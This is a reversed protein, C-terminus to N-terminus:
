LEGKRFTPSINTLLPPGVVTSASCTICRVKCAHSCPTKLSSSLQPTPAFRLQQWAGCPWEKSGSRFCKLFSADVCAWFSITAFFCGSSNLAPQSVNCGDTDGNWQSAGSGGVVDGNCHCCTCPRVCSFEVVPHLLCLNLARTCRPSPRHVSSCLTHSLPCLVSDGALGVAGGAADSKSGAPRAWTNSLGIPFYLTKNMFYMYTLSARM